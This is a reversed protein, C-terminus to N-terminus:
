EFNINFELATPMDKFQKWLITGHSSTIYVFFDNDRQEILSIIYEVGNFRVTNGAQFHMVGDPYNTGVSIKRIQAM